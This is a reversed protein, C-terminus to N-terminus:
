SQAVAVDPEPVDLVSRQVSHFVSSEGRSAEGDEFPGASQRSLCPIDKQIVTAPLRGVGGPFGCMWAWGVNRKKMRRSSKIGM